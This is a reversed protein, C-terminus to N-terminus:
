DALLLSRLAIRAHQQERLQLPACRSSHLQRSAVCYVFDHSNRPV